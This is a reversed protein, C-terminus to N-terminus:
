FLPTSVTWDVSMSISGDIVHPNGKNPHFNRDLMWILYNDKPLPAFLRCVDPAGFNFYSYRLGGGHWEVGVRVYTATFDVRGAPCETWVADGANAYEITMQDGSRNDRRQDDSERIPLSYWAHTIAEPGDYLLSNTIRLGNELGTFKAELRMEATFPNSPNDQGANQMPSIVTKIDGTGGAGQPEWMLSKAEVHLPDTNGRCQAFSFKYNEGDVGWVSTIRRLDCNETDYTLGYNERYSEIIPGQDLAGMGLITGSFYGGYSGAYFVGEVQYGFDRGEFSDRRSWWQAEQNHADGPIADETKPITVNHGATVLSPEMPCKWGDGDLLLRLTDGWGAPGDQIYSIHTPWNHPTGIVRVPDTNETFAGQRGIESAIVDEVNEDNVFISRGWREGLTLQMGGHSTYAAAALQSWTETQWTMVSQYRNSRSSGATMGGFSTSDDPEGPPYDYPLAMRFHAVFYSAMDAFDLVWQWEPEGQAFVVSRSLYRWSRGYYSSSPGNGERVLGETSFLGQTTLKGIHGDKEGFCLKRAAVICLQRFQVDDPFLKYMKIFAPLARADMNDNAGVNGRLALRSIFYRMIAKYGNEQDVTMLSRGIVFAGAMDLLMSGLYNAGDGWSFSANGRYNNEMQRIAHVFAVVLARRAMADSQHLPNTVGPGTLHWIFQATGTQTYYYTGSYVIPLFAIPNDPEHGDWGSGAGDDKVYNRSASYAQIDRGTPNSLLRAWTDRNENLTGSGPVYTPREGNPIDFDSEVFSALHDHVDVYAQTWNILKSTPLDEADAIGLDWDQAVFSELIDTRNVDSLDPYIFLSGFDFHGGGNSTGKSNGFVIGEVVNVATMASASAEKTRNVWLAIEAETSRLIRCALSQWRLSVEMNGLAGDRNDSDTLVTKNGWRLGKGIHPWSNWTEFSILTGDNFTWPGEKQWGTIFSTMNQLDITMGSVNLKGVDNGVVAERSSVMRIIAHGTDYGDIWGNEDTKMILAGGVLLQPNDEWTSVSRLWLDHGNGSQDYINEVRCDDSGAFSALDTFPGGASENDVLSDLQIDYTDPHPYVDVQAGDSRRQIRVLPGEYTGSELLVSWGAHANPHKDLVYDRDGPEPPDPPDVPPPASAIGGAWGGLIRGIVSM